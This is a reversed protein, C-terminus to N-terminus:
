NHPKNLLKILEETKLSMKKPRGENILQRRKDLDVVRPDFDILEAATGAMGVKMVSERGIRVEWQKAYTQVNDFTLDLGREPVRGITKM